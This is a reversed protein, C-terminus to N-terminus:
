HLIRTELVNPIPLDLTGAGYGKKFAEPPKNTYKKVYARLIAAGTPTTLEAYIGTSKTPAGKLLNRVAPTPIHMNGHKTMVTGNGLSITSCEAESIGLKELLIAAAVIDVISDVCGVEHFCVEEPSSKHAYAESHALHSFIDRSRAKVGAPLNSTEILRLIDGMNREPQPASIQVSFKTAAVGRKEVRRASVCYGALNMKSLESELYDIGVGLDLLSGVVMDGSIGSACNFYAKTM